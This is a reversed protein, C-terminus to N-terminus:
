KQTFYSLAVRIEKFLTEYSMFFAYIHERSYQFLYRMNLNDRIQGQINGQPIGWIRYKDPWNKMVSNCSAQPFNSM